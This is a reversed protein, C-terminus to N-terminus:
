ADSFEGKPSCDVWGTEPDVRPDRMEGSRLAALDSKIAQLKDILLDIEEIKLFVTNSYSSGLGLNGNRGMDRTTTSQWIRVRCTLPAIDVGTRRLEEHVVKTTEELSESVFGQLCDGKLLAKRSYLGGGIAVLDYEIEQGENDEITIKPM